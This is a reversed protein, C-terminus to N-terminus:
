SRLVAVGAELEAHCNACLLVCKAAEETLRAWSHTLGRGGLALRKTAPDRHHFHLAGACRDYGCLACAGGAHEVLRKRVRRRRQVVADSRCRLCALSGDGRVVFPTDGHRRCTAMSREGAGAGRRAGRRAAASTELGHRALWYRVTTPSRELVEAIERITLDREVLDALEAKEIGGRSRHRAANRAELGHKRIWYSVTSPHRREREGIAQLSLGEDLMRELAARDM